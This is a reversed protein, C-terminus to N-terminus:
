RLSSQTKTAGMRLTRSATDAFRGLYANQFSLWAELRLYERKVTAAYNSQQALNNTEGPDAALNYLQPLERNFDYIFKLDGDVVGLTFNGDASFLYARRDRDNEFLSAGQWQAPPALGLISLITPAIDIQRGIRRVEIRNPVLRPNVILFPIRTEEDFVTFGHILQGHEGFAEGHDGTIVILTDDSLGMHDIQHAIKGILADTSHVANLERNLYSDHVHYDDKSAAFYPHHTDQTWLTLFFPKSRDTNIWDVAKGVLEADRVSGYDRHESQIDKFGHDKLFEENNDYYLQGSHIFATRYGQNELIAPLAPIRLDPSYRSVTFWGHYPYVSCFLAAMAASTLAQGVYIRDFVLAHRSLTDLEPTDTYPAGYVHLRRSGVSEMVVM